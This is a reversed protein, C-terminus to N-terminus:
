CDREGDVRFLLQGRQHGRGGDEDDDGDEANEPRDTRDNTQDHVTVAPRTLGDALSKGDVISAIILCLFSPCLAPIWRQGRVRRAVWGVATSSCHEILMRRSFLPNQGAVRDGDVCDEMQLSM